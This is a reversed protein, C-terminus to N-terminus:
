GSCARIFCCAMLVSSVRLWSKWRGAPLRMRLLRGDGANTVYLTSEDESLALGNAGFPLPASTGLLADRSVSPSTAHAASRLRPIRYIAGQFSDSVYLNGARDFVM